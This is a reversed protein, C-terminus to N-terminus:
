VKLHEFVQGVILPPYVEGVKDKILTIEKEDLEVEGGAFVKKALEYKTVKDVGSEQKGQQAPVLIANVIALKLTADIANGAGDNDKMVQGDMNKLNVDVNVLM